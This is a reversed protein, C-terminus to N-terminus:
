STLWMMCSSSWPMACSSLRETTLLYKENKGPVLGIARGLRAKLELERATTIAMNVRADVFPM